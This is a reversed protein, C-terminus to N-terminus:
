VGKVVLEKKGVMGGDACRCRVEERWVVVRRGWYGGGIVSDFVDLRLASDILDPLSKLRKTKSVGHGDEGM